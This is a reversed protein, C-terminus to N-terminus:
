LPDVDYIVKVSSYKKNELVSKEVEFLRKRVEKTNANLELKILITRIHYLQIKSILPRSPGFVRNRFVSIMKNAFEKTIIELLQENRDKLKIEILRCFPPYNFLKREEIQMDYFGQYDNAKVYKIVPNEIQSTQLYVEGNNNKRGARGSVQILLQFAREYARFNPFNFLNTANIIGVVDVKDFDLGKSVMQTGILINTKNERFDNLINTYSHKGKTTDIDMRAIHSTPFINNTEEEIRETGYGVSDIKSCECEPCQTPAKAIAGCYHCVLISQSRHYTLSVDCKNCKPTWACADCEIYPAYGRRNQFLIIQRNNELTKNIANKLLPSFVSKMMKKRRLEKIDQINIKPLVSKNHRSELKILGYKGSTAYYYSEISPTASGLLVKADQMKALIQATNKANYRPAPDTQKFTPEHEEDIIILGLNDFPLFVASRAGLILKCENKRLRQSVEARENDSMKSHYVGIESGFIKQLRDTIQTTLAIEPLLYLIQKEQKLYDEILKIYIETKGSGTIGFLLSIDKHEFSKKIQDLAINQIESLENIKSYNSEGYYLRNIKIKEVKIHGKKELEGLISSSVKLEKQLQKKSLTRNDEELLRLFCEQQKKAKALADITENIRNDNYEKNISVYLEYKSTYDKQIKESLIVLEKEALQKVIKLLTSGEFKKEIDKLKINKNEKLYKIINNEAESLDENEYVIDSFADVFTDSELKFSAPLAAKYIEGLSCMYYNSMWQWLDLQSKNIIPTDDLIEYIDKINEKAEDCQYITHVIATYYKKKGFPVVVRTGEKIIGLQSPLIHYTFLQKLPIPLILDAYFFTSRNMM